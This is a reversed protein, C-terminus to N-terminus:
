RQNYFPAGRRLLKFLASLGYELPAGKKYHTSKPVPFKGTERCVPCYRDNRFLSGMKVKRNLQDTPSRQVGCCLSPTPHLCKVHILCCHIYVVKPPDGKAEFPGFFTGVHAM